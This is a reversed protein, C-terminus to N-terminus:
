PQWNNYVSAALSAELVKNLKGNAKLKAVGDALIKDLEGGAQGKPLGFTIDNASYLARAINKLGLTKLIPDASDQPYILGDISASDVRKLSADIATTLVPAFEFLNALSATTEVKYGKKNGATLDQVSIPKGKNYYLVFIMQYVKAGSYDYIQAGNKKPDTSKTAPFMVDTQNNQILYIGRAPPVVETTFTNGTVEELAKFMNVFSDSVPLQFIAVKYDKAFVATVCMTLAIIFIFTRKM